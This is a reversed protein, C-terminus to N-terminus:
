PEPKRRTLREAEAFLNPYGFPMEVGDLGLAGLHSALALMAGATNAAAGADREPIEYDYLEHAMRRITEATLHAM